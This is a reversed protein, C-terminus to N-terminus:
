DGTYAWAAARMHLDKAEWSQIYQKLEVAAFGGVWAADKNGLM